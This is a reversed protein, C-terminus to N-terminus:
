RRVHGSCLTGLVRCRGDGFADSEEVSEDKGLYEGFMARMRNAKAGVTMMAMARQSSRAMKSSISTGVRCAYMIPMVSVSSCGMM